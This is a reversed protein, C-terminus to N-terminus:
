HGEGRMIRFGHLLGPMIADLSEEVANRSGPLNVLPDGKPIKGERLLQVTQPRLTLVAQARASKSTKIKASVDKMAHRGIYRSFLESDARNSERMM